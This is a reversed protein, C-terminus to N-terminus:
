STATTGGPFRSTPDDPFMDDLEDRADRVNREWEPDRRETPEDRSGGRRSRRDVPRDYRHGGGVKYMVFGLVMFAFFMKMLFLPLLLGFGVISATAGAGASQVLAFFLWAVFLWGIIPFRRYRFV